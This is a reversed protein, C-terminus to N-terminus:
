IAMQTRSLETMLSGSDSQLVVSLLLVLFVSPPFFFPFIVLLGFRHTIQQMYNAAPSQRTMRCHMVSLSNYEDHAVSVCHNQELNNRM